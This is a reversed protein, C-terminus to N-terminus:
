LRGRGLDLYRRTERGSHVRHSLGGEFQFLEKGTKLEVGKVMTREKGAAPKVHLVAKEEDQGLLLDM